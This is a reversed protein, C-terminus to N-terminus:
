LGNTRFGAEPDSNESGVVDDFKKSTATNRKGPKTVLGPKM